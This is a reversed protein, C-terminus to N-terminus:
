VDILDGHEIGGLKGCAANGCQHTGTTAAWTGATGATVGNDIGIRPRIVDEIQPQIVANVSGSDGLIVLSGQDADRIATGIGDEKAMALDTGDVVACRGEGGAVHIGNERTARICSPELKASIKLFVVICSGRSKAGIGSAEATRERLAAQEDHSVACHVHTRIRKTKPSDGTANGRDGTKCTKQGWNAAFDDCHEISSIIEVFTMKRNETLHCESRYRTSTTKHSFSEGGLTLISM